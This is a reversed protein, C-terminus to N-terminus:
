QKEQKKLIYKENPLIPLTALEKLSEYVFDTNALLTQRLTNKNHSVETCPKYNRAHFISDFELWPQPVCLGKHFDHTWRKEVCSQIGVWPSSLSFNIWQREWSYSNCNM